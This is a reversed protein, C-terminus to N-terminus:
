LGSTTRSALWQAVALLSGQEGYISRQEEAGAGRECGRAGEAVGDARALRRAAPEALQGLSTLAERAPREEDRELWILDADLGYRAARWKNEEILPRPQGPVQGEREYREALTAALSQVLAVLGAVNELRSQADCIRVEVTALRPHPRIDCCIYTYDAFSNTKMGREVLLEFEEWSAFAPPLGSRPFPDFVKIRTSALGTDRGHWFPSNASLALLEPLWTRLGNA